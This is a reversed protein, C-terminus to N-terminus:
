KPDYQRSFGCNSCYYTVKKKGLAGAALGIPGFAVAGIAAKGKSFGAKDTGVYKWGYM